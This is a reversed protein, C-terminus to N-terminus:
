LPGRKKPTAPKSAKIRDLTDDTNLADRDAKAQMVRALEALEDLGPCEKMIENALDIPTRGNKDKVTIDSGHGLLRYASALDQEEVNNAFDDICKHLPTWGNGDQANIDAGAAILYQMGELDRSLHIPTSGELDLANIDAGSQILAKVAGGSVEHLATRGMSDVASTDCGADILALAVEESSQWFLVTNENFWDRENIDAGRAILDRVEDATKARRLPTTVEDPGVVEKDEGTKLRYLLKNVRDVDTM